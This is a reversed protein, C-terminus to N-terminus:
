SRGLLHFHGLIEHTGKGLDFVSVESDIDGIGRLVMHVVYLVIDKVHPDYGFGLKYSYKGSKVRMHKATKSEKAGHNSINIMKLKNISLNWIVISEKYPRYLFMDDCCDHVVNELKRPFNPLKDLPLDDIESTSADNL